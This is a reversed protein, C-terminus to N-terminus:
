ELDAFPVPQVFWLKGVSTANPGGYQLINGSCKMIALITM